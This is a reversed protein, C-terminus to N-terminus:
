WGGVLTDHSCVSEQSALWPKHRSYSFSELHRGGSFIPLISCRNAKIWFDGEVAGTPTATGSFVHSAGAQSANVVIPSSGATSNSGLSTTGTVTLNSNIQMAASATLGAVTTSGTVNLTNATAGGTASFAGVITLAQDMKLGGGAVGYINGLQNTGDGFMIYPIGTTSLYMQLRTGTDGGVFSNFFPNGSTNSYSNFQAVYATSAAAGMNIVVSGGTTTGNLYNAYQNIDAALTQNGATVAYFTAM